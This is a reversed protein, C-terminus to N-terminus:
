PHIEVNNITADDDYCPSREILTSHGCDLNLVGTVRVITGQTLTKGRITGAAEPGQVNGNIPIGNWLVSNAGSEMWGPLLPLPDAARNPPIGGKGYMILECHIIHPAQGQPLVPPADANNRFAELKS